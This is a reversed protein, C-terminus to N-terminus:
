FVFRYQGSNVKYTTDAYITASTNAPVDVWLTIKNGERKWESRILGHVSKYEGKVWTLESVFHPRIIVHRFGPQSYDYNIGALSNIMWASVDGMFVHNLSADRFQPSLTWTEALTSYGNENVWHGWSPATEKTVMKYADEVFGYRTLMAPVTKSGLLGFDLFHNNAKVTEQLRTAVLLEKEAPVIGLYLALAQATQTGNAYIGKESQFFTSNILAKIQSAKQEFLSADKGLLKAFRAMTMYDYYYYCTSTYENPTTSKYYVWDGLGFALLGDKEKKKLYDLYVICTEYVNSIATTDNYYNYLADPIIFLAADWVPGPWEGYGWGASPIIGAIEGKSNQNDIFDNMWKEYFLIGDFNLLGLDIAVHADATWGNKERQPCDTPISHINSKYSQITANWIKNLLENSCSFKGVQNLDTHIFLGTLNDVTLQLVKSSIIEVYQFGHYSFGPTFIEGNPDGKLTYIDTQFIEKKQVPHYYVNINGQELRGSKKLLEGHKITLVTGAEGKVKLQCLGSFNQGMDFVHISDGFSRVSIPKIESTVRIAPMQQAQLVPAPPTTVRAPVWNNGTFGVTNWGTEELRADYIDGSYINNYLYAGTNTKWTSDTVILEKTGDTYSVSIECIMQPRNRWRAKHFDWVAVSQENFWGNGLVTAAVNEGENLLNTVDHTAYLVRKDFHTYGPDLYNEGVRKGNLFMEYYGLGCIYLRASQVKKTLKFTKRFLPSPEFDKNHEDTIWQAHWDSLNLKATEFTALESSITKASKESWVTVKWYYKTHPNLAKGKFVAYTQGSKVKDSVWIDAKGFRLLHPSSAVQIQFFKQKFGKQKTTFSWTFRPESTDIGIPNYQYECKLNLGNKKTAKVGFLNLSSQLVVLILFIGNKRTM